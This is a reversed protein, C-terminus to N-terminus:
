GGMRGPGIIATIADPKPPRLSGAHGSSQLSVHNVIREQPTHCSGTSAASQPSGPSRRPAVPMTINNAACGHARSPCLPHHNGKPTYTPRETNAMTAPTSSASPLPAAPDLPRGNTLRELNGHDDRRDHGVSEDAAKLNGGARPASRPRPSHSRSCRAASEPGPPAPLCTAIRAPTRRSCGQRRRRRYRSQRRRLVGASCVGDLATDLVCASLTV